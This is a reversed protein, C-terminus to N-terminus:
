RLIKMCIEEVVKPYYKHELKHIREALSEVNDVPLVPCSKQLIIAGEDYHENVFHITIGSKSEKNKLVAKHVFDGYMGKGGYKPLLAPHINIIKDPYNNVMSEPLLWMFGALVILDYSNNKLSKQFEDDYFETKSFTFSDINHRKARELVYATKNNSYIAIVSMKMNLHLHNIIAEANSGNGSAFIAIKCNKSM